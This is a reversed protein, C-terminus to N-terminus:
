RRDTMIRRPGQRPTPHIAPRDSKNPISLVPAASAAHDLAAQLRKKAHGKSRAFSLTTLKRDRDHWYADLAPRCDHFIRMVAPKLRRWPQPHSRCINRLEHDKDPLPRLDTIWYHSILRFVMGAGVDNLTPFEPHELIAQIPIPFLKRAM